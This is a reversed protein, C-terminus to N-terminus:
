KRTGGAPQAFGAAIYGIGRDVSEFLCRHTCRTGGCPAKARERFRELFNLNTGLLHSEGASDPHAEPTEILTTV